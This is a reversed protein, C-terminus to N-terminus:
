KQAALQTASLPRPNRFEILRTTMQGNEARLLRRAVPYWVNGKKTYEDAFADVRKLAGTKADFYTVFFTRPLYKGGEVTTTELISITFREGGMTRTVESTRGDRVRYSSKLTDNLHILRGTPSKDDRDFALPHRGDGKAFDGGKRHTLLSTLQGDLWEMASESLGEMKVQTGDKVSYTLMGKSVQGNDNFVIDATFGAFGAPWVVRADNAAKLLAYAEPDAKAASQAVALAALSFLFTAAIMMKMRTISHKM